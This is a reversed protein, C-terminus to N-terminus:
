RWDGVVTFAAWYYPSHWRPDRRMERQAAALAATPGLGDVLLGRYFRRMLNATGLDDVEWLSAMVRPVGAYMFARSLGVLGEGEIARGLGTQCGSLVVLDASLKLNFVDYLHLIGDTQRGRQDVMSLALGSLEPRASNLIGHSAIHVISARAVDPGRMTRVSADFDLAEVVRSTSVLATIAKAEERSFLLRNFGARTADDEVGRTLSEASLRPTRGPDRDDTSSPTADRTVRPDDATYVPDALVAVRGHVRAPTRERRLEGLVSMSPLQVLEHRDILLADPVTRSGAQRPVPLAAFPIYQLAGSAVVALRRTRWERELPEAIPGLLADSLAAADNTLDRDIEAINRGGRRRATEQLATLDAYVRRAQQEITAAPPLAFARMSDRTVAWAWSGEAGLAIAVLVTGDDILRQAAPLSAPEPRALAAYRPSAARINADVVALRRELDSIERELAPGRAKGQPTAPLDRLVADSAGLQRQLARQEALLAPDVGSRIDVGREAILDSLSRARSREFLEFARAAHDVSPARQHMRMEVDIAGAYYGSLAAGYSSRLADSQLRGRESEVLKLARDLSAAAAAYDGGARQTRARELLFISEYADGPMGAGITAGRDIVGTSATLDGMARYTTALDRLVRLQGTRSQGGMVIDLAQKQLPLARAADGLLTYSVGLENAVAAWVNRLQRPMADLTAELIERAQQAEGRRNHMEAVSMAAIFRNVAPPKYLKVADSYAALAADIDGALAQVRGVILMTTALDEETGNQRAVSVARAILALAEDIRHMRTYTLALQHTALLEEQPAAAARLTAVAREGFTAAREIEGREEEARSINRAALGCNISDIEGCQDYGREFSALANDAQGIALQAWGLMHLAFHLETKLGLEEFMRAAEIYTTVGDAPAQLDHAQQEGLGDLCMAILEADGIARWAALTSQWTAVARAAAEGSGHPLRRAQNFSAIAAALLDDAPYITALLRFRGGAPVVKQGRVTVVLTGAAPARWLLLERGYHHKEKEDATDPPAGGLSADVAVDAGLQDVAIKVADGNNVPLSFSLRDGTKIPLDITVGPSLSAAPQGGAPAVIAVAAVIRAAARIM